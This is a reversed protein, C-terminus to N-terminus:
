AADAAVALWGYALAATRLRARLTAAAEADGRAEHLAAAALDARATLLPADLAVHARRARAVHEEAADLRRSTIALLALPLEVSGLFSLVRSTVVFRDRFPLLMDYLTAAADRDHVAFVIESLLRMNALWVGNRPIRELGNAVLQDLQRRADELHGTQTRVWAATTVFGPQEPHEDALADLVDALGDLETRERAVFLSQVAYSIGATRAGLQEGIVRAEECAEAADDIRGDIQARLARYLAGYWRTRPQTRALPGDTIAAIAEDAEALRGCELLDGVRWVEAQVSFPRGLKRLEADLALRGDLADPCSLSTHRVGLAVAIAHADGSTRSLELAETSLTQAADFDGGDYRAGAVRATVLARLVTADAPLRRRADDLMDVVVPHTGTLNSGVSEDAGGMLGLLATAVGIPDHAERASELADAYIQEAHETQGATEYADGLECLLATRETSGLVSKEGSEAAERAREFHQVAQETAGRQAADLGARRAYDVALARNGAPLARLYHDAIVALPPDTPHLQEFAEAAARHLRARRSATLSEYLTDETLAHAFAYRGGGEDVVVEAARADELAATVVKPDLHTTASLTGVDFRRGLVSAAALMRRTDDALLEVRRGIAARVDGPLAPEPMTNM